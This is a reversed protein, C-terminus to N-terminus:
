GPGATCSASTKLPAPPSGRCPCGRSLSPPSDGVRDVRGAWDQASQGPAGHRSAPRLPRLTQGRPHAFRALSAWGTHRQRHHVLRWQCAPWSSCPWWSSHRTGALWVHHAHRRSPPMNTHVASVQPARRGTLSQASVGEPREPALGLSSRPQPPLARAAAATSKKGADGPRAACLGCGEPPSLHGGHHAAPRQSHMYWGTLRGAGRAAHM